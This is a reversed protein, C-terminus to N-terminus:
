KWNQPLKSFELYDETSLENKYFGDLVGTVNDVQNM